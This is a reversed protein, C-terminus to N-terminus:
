GELLIGIKPVGIIKMSWRLNEVIFRRKDLPQSPININGRGWAKKQFCSRPSAIVARPAFYETKLSHPSKEL